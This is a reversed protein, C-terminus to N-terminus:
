TRPTASLTNTELTYIAWPTYQDRRFAKPSRAFPARIVRTKSPSDDLALDHDIFVHARNGGRSNQFASVDCNYKQGIKEILVLMANKDLVTASGEVHDIELHAKLMSGPFMQTVYTCPTSSKNGKSTSVPRGPKYNGAQKNSFVSLQNSRARSLIQRDDNQLRGSFRGSFYDDDMIAFANISCNEIFVSKPVSQGNKFRNSQAIELMSTYVKMDKSSVINQFEKRFQVLLVEAVFHVLPDSDQQVKSGVKARRPYYKALINPMIGDQTYRVALRRYAKSCRLLVQVQVAPDRLEGALSSNCLAPKKSFNFYVVRRTMQGQDDQWNPVVNAVLMFPAVWQLTRRGGYKINIEVREGNIIKHLDTQFLNSMLEKDMDAAIVVSSNVLSEFPAHKGSILAHPM